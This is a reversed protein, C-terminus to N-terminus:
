PLHAVGEGVTSLRAVVRPADLLVEALADEPLCGETRGADSLVRGAGKHLAGLAAVALAVDADGALQSRASSWADRLQGASTAAPALAAAVVGALPELDQGQRLRGAWATATTQDKGRAYKCLVDLLDATAAAGALARLRGPQGAALLAELCCGSLGAPLAACAKLAM